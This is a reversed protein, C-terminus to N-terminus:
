KFLHDNKNRNFLAVIECVFLSTNPAMPISFSHPPLPPENPLAPEECELHRRNSDLSRFKKM